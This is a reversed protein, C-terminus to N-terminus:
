HSLAGNDRSYAYYKAVVFSPSFHPSFRALLLPAFGMKKNRECCNYILRETGRERERSREGKPAAVQQHTQQKSAPTRTHTHTARGLFLQIRNMNKGKRGCSIL